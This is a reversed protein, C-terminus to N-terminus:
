LLVRKYKFSKEGFNAVIGLKLDSAKLYNITCTIFRDVIMAVAKAELLISDYVVFDANFKRRLPIGNYNVTYSKERAYPINNMQLEMEL